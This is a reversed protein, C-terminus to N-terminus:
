FIWYFNIKLQRNVTSQRMNKASILNKLEEPLFRESKTPQTENYLCIIFNKTLPQFNFTSLKSYPLVKLGMFEKKNSEAYVAELELNWEKVGLYVIEALDGAGIFSVKKVGKQLLDKCLQSSKKRAERYFNMSFDLFEYTLRAKEKVGKPTLFYDWRRAHHKKVHFLGKEVMKNLLEHALKVSCGLKSAAMRNNLRPSEEVHKLLELRHINKKELDM